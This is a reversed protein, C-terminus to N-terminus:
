KTNEYKSVRNKNVREIQTSTRAERYQVRTEHIALLAERANHPTSSHCTREKGHEEKDTETRLFCPLRPGRGLLIHSPSFETDDKTTTNAAFIARAM